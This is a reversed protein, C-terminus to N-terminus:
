TFRLLEQQEAVNAPPNSRVYELLNDISTTKQMFKESLFRQAGDVGRFEMTKGSKDWTTMEAVLLKDDREKIVVWGRREKIYGKYIDEQVGYGKVVRMYHRARNVPKWFVPLTDEGEKIYSVYGAVITGKRGTKTHIPMRKDLIM